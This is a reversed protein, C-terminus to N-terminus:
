RAVTQQVVHVGFLVAAAGALSVFLAFLSFGPAVDLMPAVIWGAFAAGLVGLAVNLVVAQARANALYYSATWGALGGALLWTVITM